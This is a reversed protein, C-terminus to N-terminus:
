GDKTSKKEVLASRQRRSQCPSQVSGAATHKDNGHCGYVIKPIGSCLVNKNVSYCVGCRKLLKRWKVKWNGTLASVTQALDKSKAGGGYM